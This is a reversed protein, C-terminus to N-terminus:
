APLYIVDAFTVSHSSLLFRIDMKTITNNDSILQVTISLSYDPTIPYKKM